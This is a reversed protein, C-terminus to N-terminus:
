SRCEPCRRMTTFRHGRRREVPGPVYGAGDCRPCHDRAAANAQRAREWAAVDATSPFIEQALFHEVCQKVVYLNPLELLADVLVPMVPRPSLHFLRQAQRKVATAHSRTGPQTDVTM